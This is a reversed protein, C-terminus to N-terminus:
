SLMRNKELKRAAAFGILSIVVVVLFILHYGITPFVDLLFGSFSYYFADPSYACFSLFSIAMGYFAPPIRAEDITILAMSKGMNVFLCSLLLCIVAGAFSQRFFLLMIMLVVVNLIFTYKIVRSASHFHDTLKGAVPAAFIGIFYARGITLVNTFGSSMTYTDSLYPLIYNLSSFAIYNAFVILIVTWLKRNELLQKLHELSISTQKTPDEPLKRLFLAAFLASIINLVAFLIFLLQVLRAYPASISTLGFGAAAFIVGLLNNFIFFLSFVTGQNFDGGIQRLIQYHSPYFVAGLLFGIVGFIALMMPYSPLFTLAITLVGIILSSGSVLKWCKFHKLFLAGCLYSFMSFLGYFSYLQGLRFHTLELGSQMLKYYLGKMFALSYVANYTTALILIMFFHTKKLPHM